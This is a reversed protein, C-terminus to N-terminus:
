VEEKEEKWDRSERDLIDWVARVVFDGINEAQESPVKM